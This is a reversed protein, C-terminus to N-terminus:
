AASASSPASAAPFEFIEKGIYAHLARSRPDTRRHSHPRRLRHKRPHHRLLSLDGASRLRHRPAADALPYDRVPRGDILVMGPAADAATPHPCSRPSAPARPVSSLSAPAQPSTSSIDHLIDPGTAYAFTLNRFQHAGDIPAPTAQLSHEPQFPASTTPSLFAPDDNIVPKQKMIADIRVVSATGRQVLNVVWGIAIMPWILQVMYVNYSTFQGVTMRHTVVQHGGVLLTMMLSIGLVFELTPWLMAM